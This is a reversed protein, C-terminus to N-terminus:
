KCFLSIQKCKSSKFQLILFYLTVLQINIVTDGYIDIAFEFNSSINSNMTRFEDQNLLKDRDFANKANETSRM